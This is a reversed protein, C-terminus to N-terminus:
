SLLEALETFEELIREPGTARPDDKGALGIHVLWVPMGAAHGAKVDISMDGIYVAEAPSVKLRRCAEFLMAPDPKAVGVDEPGLVDQIVASLGLGAILAKTFKVAKNSCVAMPYGRAHLKALTDAVGPFLKTATLMIGPHHAQYRRIAEDTPLTPVLTAMLNDLGLGVYGRVDVEALAPLGSSERVYNTSATIAAFSDALTGDFDFLVARVPM